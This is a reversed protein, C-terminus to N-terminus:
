SLHQRGTWFPDLLQRHHIVSFRNSLSPVQPAHVVFYLFYSASHHYIGQCPCPTPVLFTALAASKGSPYQTCVQPGAQSSRICAHARGATPAQRRSIGPQQSDHDAECGAIACHMHNTTKLDATGVEAQLSLSWRFTILQLGSSKTLHAVGATGQAKWVKASSWCMCAQAISCFSSSLVQRCQLLPHQQGVFQVHVGCIRAQFRLVWGPLHHPPPM